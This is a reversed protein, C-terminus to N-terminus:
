SPCVILPPTMHVLEEGQFIGVGGSRYRGTEDVLGRMLLEHAALFDEEASAEWEEMTEYTAFSNAGGSDRPPHGLVRKGDIVATVQEHTLTNNEIAVGM